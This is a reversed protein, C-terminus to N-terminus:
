SDCSWWLITTSAVDFSIESVLARSLFTPIATETETNTRLAATIRITTSSRVTGETWWDNIPMRAQILEHHNLHHQPPPTWSRIQSSGACPMLCSSRLAVNVLIVESGIDIVFIRQNTPRYAQWSSGFTFSALDPMIEVGGIAIPAIQLMRARRHRSSCIFSSAVDM